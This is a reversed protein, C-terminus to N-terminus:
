SFRLMDILKIIHDRRIGGMVMGLIAVIGGMGLWRGFPLSMGLILGWVGGFGCCVLMALFGLAVVFALACLALSVLGWRSAAVFFGPPVRM